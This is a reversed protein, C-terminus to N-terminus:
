KLMKSLIEGAERLTKPKNTPSFYISTSNGSITKPTSSINNLQSLYETIIKNKIDDNSLVHNDIFEQSNLTQASKREAEKIIKLAVHYKNPLNNIENDTLIEMIKNKYENSGTNNLFEDITEKQPIQEDKEKELEALRQSKRTFESELNNYAELLSKANKFKGIMSDTSENEVHASTTENLVPQELINNEM